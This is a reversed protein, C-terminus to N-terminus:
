VDLESCDIGHQRENWATLVYYIRDDHFSVKTRCKEQKTGLSRLFM